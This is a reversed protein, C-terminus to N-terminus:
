SPKDLGNFKISSYRLHSSQSEKLVHLVLIVDIITLLSFFTKKM